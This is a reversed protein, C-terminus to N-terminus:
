GDSGWFAQSGFEETIHKRVENQLALMTMTVITGGIIALAGLVLIVYGYWPM